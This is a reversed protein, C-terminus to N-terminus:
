RLAYLVNNDFIHVKYSGNRTINGCHTNAEYEERSYGIEDTRARNSGFKENKHHYPPIAGGGM